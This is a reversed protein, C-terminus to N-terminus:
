RRGRIKRLLFNLGKTPWHQSELNRVPLEAYDLGRAELWVDLLRESVFGFVRADYKTYSSIDVRRELEFLIDFLWTCYADLLSRKMVLMNFRHGTSRRMVRDFAGVCDPHREAIIRRTLDLDHAHHAHVYHSYNTEILYNRKRPLIIGYRGLLASIEAPMAKFHRRYHVLGIADEEKLNKWAWYLGTLECFNPNRASINDGEDDRRFGAIPPNGVAGVQLPLYEGDEPMWYPKHAAVVIRLGRETGESRGTRVEPEGEVARRLGAEFRERGFGGANERCRAADWGRGEFEEIANCLSEVTQERFFLGTEGDVVTELAGGRGFAIVPTGAAQAEVPIIGFDEMGPFILARAEAYCRRMEERSFSGGGIVVLKRGMRKCAAIALDKRKYKVPAGAFLYYDKKEYRGQRFFDVDCPPHVVVSDRGYIRRIRDAVFRSNAVFQDVSEASRLDEQRLHPSFARMALKGMIGAGRYYDDYMDWLYRMPTHCYCIHRMGPPKRIGKIPGSESSIALDYGDLEFSRSASSMLPLYAQPYARGFPLRAIFSERVEHGHWRTGGGVDRMGPKLAHTFVDADPFMTGLADFVMEGGRVNTLWYHLLATKM